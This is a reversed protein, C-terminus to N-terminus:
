SDGEQLSFFRGAEGEVPLLIIEKKLKEKLQEFKQDYALFLFSAVEKPEQAVESAYEKRLLRAMEETMSEPHREFVFDSAFLAAEDFVMEAQEKRALYVPFWEEVVSVCEWDFGLAELEVRLGEITKVNCRECIEVMDAFRFSCVLRHLALYKDGKIKVM